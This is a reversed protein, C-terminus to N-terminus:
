KQLAKRFQHKPQKSQKTKHKEKQAFQKEMVNGAEVVAAKKEKEEIKKEEGGEKNEDHKHIVEQREGQEEGHAHVHKTKIEEAKKEVKEERAKKFKLKEPMDFLEARVIEGEKVVKVKIKAPPNKIGKHWVEENIYKDLRIKRLDRDRIKLHQALFEKIAKVAKNARKYRPVKHWERRLPITYEREIKDTKTEAM